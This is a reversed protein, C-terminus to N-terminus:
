DKSDLLTISLILPIIGQRSDKDCPAGSVSLTPVGGSANIPPLLRKVQIFSLTHFVEPGRPPKGVHGAGARRGLAVGTKNTLTQCVLIIAPVQDGQASGQANHDQVAKRVVIAM